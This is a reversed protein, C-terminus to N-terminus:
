FISKLKKEQPSLRQVYHVKNYYYNWKNHYFNIEVLFRLVNEMVYLSM